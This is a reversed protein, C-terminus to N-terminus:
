SATIHASIKLHKRIAHSCTDVGMNLLATIIILILATDLHDNSIANDIYYGLTTIGLIGLIASERM